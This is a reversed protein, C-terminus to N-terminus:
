YSLYTSFVELEPMTNVRRHGCATSVASPKKPFNLSISQLLSGLYILRSSLMVVLSAASSEGEAIGYPPRFVGTRMAM